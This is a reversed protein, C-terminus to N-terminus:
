LLKLDTSYDGTARPSSDRWAKASPDQSVVHIVPTRSKKHKSELMRIILHLEACHTANIRHGKPCSHIKHATEAQAFLRTQAPASTASALDTCKQFKKSTRSLHSTNDCTAAALSVCVQVLTFKLWAAPAAIFVLMGTITEVEKLTFLKRRAHFPKLLVMVQSIYAHLVEADMHRASFVKSLAENFHSVMMGCVNDFPHTIIEYKTRVTNKQARIKVWALRLM